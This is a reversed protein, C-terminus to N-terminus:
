NKRKYMKWKIHIHGGEVFGWIHRMFEIATGDLSTSDEDPTAVVAYGNAQSGRDVRSLFPEGQGDVLWSPNVSTILLFRLLVDAPVTVGVEYNYWSRPPVRLLAALKPGGHEGYLEIRVQRLRQGLLMRARAQEPPNKKRAM